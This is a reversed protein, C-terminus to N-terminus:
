EKSCGLIGFSLRQEDKQKNSWLYGDSQKGSRGAGGFEQVHTSNMGAEYSATAVVSRFRKTKAQKRNEDQWIRQIIGTDDLCQTM